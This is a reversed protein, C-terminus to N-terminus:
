RDGIGQVNTADGLAIWGAFVVGEPLNRAVLGGGHEELMKRAVPLGLGVGFGKTSFLPEFIKEIVGQDIHSGSNAVYIWGRNGIQKVRILLKPELQDRLADVANQVINVVARAIKSPVGNVPPIEQLDMRIEIRGPIEMAGVTVEVEEHLLFWESKDNTNKTFDLLEQIIKDCRKISRDCRELHPQAADRLGMRQLVFLANRITALPNRLEHAVVATTQGITALKEKDLLESQVEKLRDEAILQGTRDHVIGVYGAFEGEDYVPRMHEFLHRGVNGDTTMTRFDFWAEERNDFAGYSIRRVEPFDDPHIFCGWGDGLMHEETGGMMECYADNCSTISGTEDCLWIGTPIDRWIMEFLDSM